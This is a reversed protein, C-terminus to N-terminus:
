APIGDQAIEPHIPLISFTGQYWDHETVILPSLVVNYCLELDFLASILAKREQWTIKRETLVLLDIDSEDDADGRAKSGFLIIEKIPFRNKLLTSAAQIAQREEEAIPANTLHRM